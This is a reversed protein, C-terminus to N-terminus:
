AVNREIFQYYRLQLNRDLTNDPFNEDTKSKLVFFKGNFQVFITLKVCIFKEIRQLGFILNEFHDIFQKLYQKEFSLIGSMPFFYSNFKKFRGIIKLVGAKFLLKARRPCVAHILYIPVNSVSNIIKAIKNQIGLATM